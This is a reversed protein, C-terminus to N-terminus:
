SPFNPHLVFNLFITLLHMKKHDLYISIFINEAHFLSSGSVEKVLDGLDLVHFRALEADQALARLARIIIQLVSLVALGDAAVNGAVLDFLHTEVRGVIPLKLSQDGLVGLENDFL